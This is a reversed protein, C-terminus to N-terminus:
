KNHLYNYNLFPHHSSVLQFPASRSDSPARLLSGFSHSIDNDRANDRLFFFFYHLLRQLFLFCVYLKDIRCLSMFISCKSQCSFNIPSAFTYCKIFYYFIFYFYVFSLLKSSLSVCAVCMCFFCVRM